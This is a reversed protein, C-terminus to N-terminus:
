VDGPSETEYGRDLAVKRMNLAVTRESGQRRLHWGKPSVDDEDRRSVAGISVLVM